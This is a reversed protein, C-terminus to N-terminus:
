VSGARERTILAQVFLSRCLIHNGYWSAPPAVQALSRHHGHNRHIFTRRSIM